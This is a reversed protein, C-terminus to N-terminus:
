YLLKNNNHKYCKYCCMMITVEVQNLCHILDNIVELAVKRDIDQAALALMKMADNHRSPDTPIVWEPYGGEAINYWGASKILGGTAYKKRRGTPGWGTLGSAM